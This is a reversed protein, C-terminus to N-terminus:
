SKSGGVFGPRNVTLLPAVPSHRARQLGERNRIGLRLYIDQLLRIAEGHESLSGKALGEELALRAKGWEHRELYRMALQIYLDGSAAKKALLEIV